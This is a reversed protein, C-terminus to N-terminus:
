APPQPTRILFYKFVDSSVFGYKMYWQRLQKRSPGDSAQVEIHLTMGERDADALIEKLLDTGIGQQRQGKPVNIRTILAADPKYQWVDAVAPLGHEFKRYYGSRM